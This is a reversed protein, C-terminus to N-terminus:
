SNKKNYRTSYFLPHPENRVVLGNVMKILNEKKQLYEQLFTANKEKLERLVELDIDESKLSNIFLTQVSLLPIKFHKEKDLVLATVIKIFGAISRQGEYTQHCAKSISSRFPGAEGVAFSAAASRANDYEKQFPIEKPYKKEVETAM